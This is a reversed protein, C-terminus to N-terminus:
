IIRSDSIKPSLNIDRSVFNTYILIHIEFLKIKGRFKDFNRGPIHDIEIRLPTNLDPM